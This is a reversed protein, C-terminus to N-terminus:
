VDSCLGLGTLLDSALVDMGGSRKDEIGFALFLEDDLYGHYGLGREKWNISVVYFQESKKGGLRQRGHIWLPKKSIAYLEFPSRERFVVVYPEYEGHFDYYKKHQVITIIFTNKDDARCGKDARKCMTVRLSNTAQHMSENQEPLKNPLYAAICQDDQEAAYPALNKEISGNPHVKAFVRSPTMDYHLYAEDDKDWFVFWNKELAGYPQPRQLETAKVFDDGATASVNSGVLTRYDQMWMGFCTHHSNSGYMLYPKKPGHFLRADHPGNNMNLVELKGECRAEGPNTAAVPLRVPAEKVCRLAGGAFTADCAVEWFMMIPDDKDTTKQGVIIYADKRTPHPIINPNFATQNGFTVSFYKKDPTSRSFLEIHTGDGADGSPLDVNTGGHGHTLGGHSHPNQLPPPVIAPSSPKQETSSSPPKTPRQPIPTQAQNHSAPFKNGIAAGVSSRLQYSAETDWFNYSLILLVVLPGLLLLLRKMDRIIMAPLVILRASLIDYPHYEHLSAQTLGPLFPFGFTTAGSSLGLTGFHSM